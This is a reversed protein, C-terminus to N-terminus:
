DFFARLGPRGGGLGVLVRAATQRGGGLLSILGSFKKKRKEEEMEWKGVNENFCGGM